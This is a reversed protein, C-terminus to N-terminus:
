TSPHHNISQLSKKLAFREENRLWGCGDSIDTMLDVQMFDDTSLVFAAFNIANDCNGDV